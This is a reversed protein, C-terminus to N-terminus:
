AQLGKITRRLWSLPAPEYKRVMLVSCPAGDAIQDPVSGFLLDRLFWEESAGIAILDYSEEAGTVEEMIGEAISERCTLRFTVDEPVHGLEDEVCQRLVDLEVECVDEPEPYIRLATLSGGEAKVIDWALQLALRAHPGGGIPVLVRKIDTETIGRDRLVAVDCPAGHVVDKVVSNSVRGTSLQGRWGMLILGVGGRAEAVGLIGSSIGRSARLLTRVPVGAEHAYGAVQRLLAKRGNEQRDLM